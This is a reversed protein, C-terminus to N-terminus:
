QCPWLYSPLAFRRMETHCSQRTLRSYIQSVLYFLGVAVTVCGLIFAGYLIADNSLLPVTIAYERLKSWPETMVLGQFAVVSIAVVAILANEIM